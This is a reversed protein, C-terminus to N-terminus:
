RPNEGGMSKAAALPVSVLSISSNDTGDTKGFGTPQQDFICEAAKVLVIDRKAPDGGAEVLANYTSLANFRHKNVVANHQHANYNRVSIALAYGLTSFVLLKSIGIQIAEYTNEPKFLFFKNFAFTALAAALILCSFGAIGVFWAITYYNHRIAENLFHQSQKSIGNKLANNKAEEAITKISAANAEISAVKDSYTKQHTAILEDLQRLRGGIDDNPSLLFPTAKAFFRSARRQSKRIGEIIRTHQAAMDANPDPYFNNLNHLSDLSQGTIDSLEKSLTFPLEGLRDLPVKKYTEIAESIIPFHEGFAGRGPEHTRCLTEPTFHRIRDILSKVGNINRDREEINYM